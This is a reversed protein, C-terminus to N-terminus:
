LGFWPAPDVTAGGVRLEFYVGYGQRLAGVTGLRAGGVLEDGATVVLEALGATVTFYGGGHDVIVTKGYDAYSDAFAVRGGFVSRVASGQPARMELGPGDSAARRGASIEARGPLPFPLRGKLAGFGAALETPEAPGPVAGYVAAHAGGTSFAREFAFARDQQALLADRAQTLARQQVELVARREALADLQAVVQVRRQALRREEAVDRELARRLREVKAAHDILAEFGGGVPLLGAKILRVYARGRVLTRAQVREAEQALATLERQQSATRQQVQELARDVGDPALATAAASPTAAPEGPLAFATSSLGGLLLLARGLRM